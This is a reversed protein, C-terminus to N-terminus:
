KLYNKKLRFGTITPQNHVYLESWSSSDNQRMPYICDFAFGLLCSCFGYVEVTVRQACYCYSHVFLGISNLFCLNGSSSVLFFFIGDLKSCAM